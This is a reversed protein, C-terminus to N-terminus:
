STLIHPHQPAQISIVETQKRKRPQPARRNLMRQLKKSEKQLIADAKLLTKLNKVGGAYLVVPRKPKWVKWVGKKNQVALKGDALRYFTQGKSPDAPNTNWSGIISAGLHGPLQGHIDGGGAGNGGGILDFPGLDFLFDAGGFGATTLVAKVWTPLADWKLLTGQALNRLWNALTGRTAVPIAPWLRSAAVAIGTGPNLDGGGPEELGPEFSSLLTADRLDMGETLPMDTSELIQKPTAIGLTQNIDADISGNSDGLFWVVIQGNDFRPEFLPDAELSIAVTLGHNTAFRNVEQTLLGASQLRQYETPSFQAVPFAM